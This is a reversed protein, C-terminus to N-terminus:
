RAESEKIEREIQAVALPPLSAGELQHNLEPLRKSKFANWNALALKAAASSERYVALAQAPVPRDSSEVVRLAASLGTNAKDLGMDRSSAGGIITKLENSAIDASAKLDANQQLKPQLESLQKQVNRIASLAQRADLAETLIGRGLKVQQALDQPTATSRPDMTIHLPQTFIKGDITLRVEYDGPAARPGRPAAYEEEDGSDPLEAGWALNWIFRHMGTAKDLIQPKPLWREAIPVPPHQAQRATDSLFSRVLEHQADFVELKSHKAPHALFYDIM